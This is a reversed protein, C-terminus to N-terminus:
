IQIYYRLHLDMHLTSKIYPNSDTSLETHLASKIYPYLDTSLFKMYLVFKVYSNEDTYLKHLYNSNKKQLSM